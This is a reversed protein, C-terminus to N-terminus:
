DGVKVNRSGSSIKGAVAIPVVTIPPIVAASVATVWAFFAADSTVNALVDDGLRASPKNGKGKGIEINGKPTIRVEGAGHQIVVDQPNLIADTNQDFSVLFAMADNEDMMRVDLAARESGDGALWNAISRDAFIAICGDGRQPPIHIRARKTGLQFIPVNQIEARSTPESDGAFQRQILPQISGRRTKEDYSAIECVTATARGELLALFVNRLNAAIAGSTSM